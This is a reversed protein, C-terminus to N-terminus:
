DGTVMLGLTNATSGQIHFGQDGKFDGKEMGTRDDIECCEKGLQWGHGQRYDEVGSRTEDKEECASRIYVRLSSRPELAKSVGCSGTQRM